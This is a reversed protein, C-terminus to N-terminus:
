TGMVGSNWSFDDLNDNSKMVSYGLKNNWTTKCEKQLNVKGPSTLFGTKYSANQNKSLKKTQLSTKIVSIMLFTHTKIM